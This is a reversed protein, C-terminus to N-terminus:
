DDDLWSLQFENGPFRKAFLRKFQGVNDAVKLLTMIEQVQRKLKEIGYDETLHQHFGARRTGDIKPNIRDLEDLVTGNM